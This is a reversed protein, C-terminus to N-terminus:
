MDTIAIFFIVSLETLPLDWMKGSTAHNVNLIFMFALIVYTTTIFIKMNIFKKVNRLTQTCHATLACLIKPGM